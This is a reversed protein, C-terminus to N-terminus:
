YKKLFFSYQIKINSLIFYSIISFPELPVKFFRSQFHKKRFKYYYKLGEESQSIIFKKNKNIYNIDNIKKYYIYLGNM